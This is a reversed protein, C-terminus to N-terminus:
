ETPPFTEPSEPVATRSFLPPSSRLTLALPGKVKAVRSGLPPAYLTVTFFPGAPWFQVTALPEPVIEEALTLLTATVHVVFEAPLPESLKLRASPGSPALQVSMLSPPRAMEEWVTAPVLAVPVVPPM